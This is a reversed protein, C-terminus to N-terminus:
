RIEKVTGPREIPGITGDSWLYRIPESEPVEGEPYLAAEAAPNGPQAAGITGDKRLGYTVHTFLQSM